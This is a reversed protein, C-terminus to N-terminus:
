FSGAMGFNIIAESPFGTDGWGIEVKFQGLATPSIIGFGYGYHFYYKGKEFQSSNVAGLDAFLYARSQRGTLLRAESSAIAYRYAPFRQDAYGRLSDFGGIFRFEDVPVTGDSEAIGWGLIRIAAVLPNAIPFYVGGDLGVATIRTPPRDGAAVRRNSRFRHDIESKVRYGKSPNVPYDSRDYELDLKVTRSVSSSLETGTEPEVRRLGITMQAQLDDGFQYGFGAKGGTEIYLTDRDVQYVGLSLSLDSGFLFPELYDLRLEGSFRDKRSWFLGFARGTGLIDGFKLTVRGIFEKNNRSGVYGAAGEFSGSPREKIHYVILCSDSRGSIEMEFPSVIDVYPMRDIRRESEAALTESYPRGAEIKLARIIAQPKTRSIGEFDFGAVVCSPGPILRLRARLKDGAIIDFDTWEGRAFPMGLDALRSVAVVALHNLLQQSATKGRAGIELDAFVNLSEPSIDIKLEEIATPLGEDLRLTGAGGNGKEYEFAAGFYGAERYLRLVAAAVSDEPMGFDVLRGLEKDTYLRNGIMEVRATGAMSFALIISAAIIITRIIM